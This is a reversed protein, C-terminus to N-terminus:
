DAHLLFGFHLLQFHVVGNLDKGSFIFAFLALDQGDVELCITNNNFTDVHDFLSELWVLRIWLTSDNIHFFGDMDRVYSKKIWFRSFWCSHFHLLLVAFINATNSGFAFLF